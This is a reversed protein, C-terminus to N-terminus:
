SLRGMEELSAQELEEDLDWSSGAVSRAFAAIQEHDKQRQLERRYCHLAKEILSQMPLSATQALEKLLLHTEQNIRVTTSM